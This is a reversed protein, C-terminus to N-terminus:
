RSFYYGTRCWKGGGSSATDDLPAAGHRVDMKSLSLHQLGAPPAALPWKQPSGRRMSTGAPHGGTEEEDSVKEEWGHPYFDDGNDLPTSKDAGANNDRDAQQAADSRVV